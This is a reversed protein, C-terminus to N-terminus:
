VGFESVHFINNRSVSMFCGLLFVSLPPREGRGFFSCLCESNVRRISHLTKVKLTIANYKVM